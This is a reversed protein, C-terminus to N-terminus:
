CTFGSQNVARTQQPKGIQPEGFQVSQSPAQPQQPQQAGDYLGLAQGTPDDSGEEGEKVLDDEVSAVKAAQVKQLTENWVETVRKAVPVAELRLLYAHLEQVTAQAVPYVQELPANRDQGKFKNAYQQVAVGPNGGAEKALANLGYELGDLLVKTRPDAQAVKILGTESAIRM